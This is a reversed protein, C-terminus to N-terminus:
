GPEVSWGDSQAVAISSLRRRLTSAKLTRAGDSLHMAVTVPEAPLAVLDHERCWTTFAKWDSRYARLTSESLSHTAYEAAEDELSTLRGPVLDNALVPLASM